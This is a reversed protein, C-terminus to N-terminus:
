QQESAKEGAPLRLREDRREPQEHEGIDPEADAKIRFDHRRADGDPLGRSRVLAEFKEEDAREDQHRDNDRVHGVGVPYETALDVHRGTVMFSRAVQWAACDAHLKATMFNAFSMLRKRISFACPKLSASKSGAAVQPMSIPLAAALSMIASPNRWRVAM